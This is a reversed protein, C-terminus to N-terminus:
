NMKQKKTLQVSAAPNKKELYRQLKRRRNTMSILGRRSHLDKAHAKFHKKLHDIRETLQAIQVEPSGTDNSHRKSNQINSEENTIKSM